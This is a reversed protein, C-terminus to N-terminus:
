VLIGPIYLLGVYLLAMRYDGVKTFLGFVITGVAAVVRGINYCFGAGTTRLLTPFLPPVYMPFLGFVGQVFFHAIPLWYYMEVHNHPVAYAGAMGLLGGLFMLVAAVRYGFRRAFFAAVFNGGMAAVTAIGVARTVYDTKQAPTWSKIDPLNQLHQTSWFILAWVTTLAVSCLLITLVTTRLTPGQFLEFVNSKQAGAHKARDWEEPEPIHRRLLFTLFAPVAGILFIWRINNPNPLYSNFILLSVTALFYGGQYATQLTASVWPRWRKPWTETILSSGAAWEGGIGLAALFRFVLLQQWTQAFASLGTFLAFTVITLTITRSRGIRDGLRGFAAGGIAWGVLFAAQIWSSYQGILQKEAPGIKGTIHLLQPVFTAAVLTYLTGDLGDFLWGLWAAIGSKIQHPTLDQLRAAEHQTAIQGTTSPTPTTEM